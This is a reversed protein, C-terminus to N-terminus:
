RRWTLTMWGELRRRHELTLGKQAFARVIAPEQHSLIGSLVLRGGPALSGSLEGSLRILPKLLINAFVLDYPAGARIRAHKFGDATLMVCRGRVGNLPINEAGVAAARPDIEAAIAHAGHRAAAIALVASGAGMDLVRRPRVGRRLLRELALLCGKTTGHHGTGFAEGAEIRITTAGAPARQMDHGGCVFFRGARVPPLGELSLKVWDTEEIPALRAELDPVSLALAGVAAQAAAETSAYAELKYRKREIEFWGVADLLGLTDLLDAAPEIQARPGTAILVFM